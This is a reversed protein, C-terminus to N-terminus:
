CLQERDDSILQLLLFECPKLQLNAVGLQATMM